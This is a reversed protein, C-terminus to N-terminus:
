ADIYRALTNLIRRPTMLALFLTHIFCSIMFQLLERFLMFNKCVQALKSQSYSDRGGWFEKKDLRELDFKAGVTFHALASVNVIRAEESAAQLQPLLLETLLFHGLYNTQWTTEHGDQTL